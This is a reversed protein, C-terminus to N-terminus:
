VESLCDCESVTSFHRLPDQHVEVNESEPMNWRDSHFYSAEDQVYHISLLLLM